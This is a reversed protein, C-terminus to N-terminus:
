HEPKIPNPNPNLSPSPTPLRPHSRVQKIFLGKGHYEYYWLDIAHRRLLREAGHMADPDFGELDSKVLHVREGLGLRPLEDDLRVLRAAVGGTHSRGNIGGSEGASDFRVIGEAKGVAANILTLQKPAIAAMKGAATHNLVVAAADSLMAYNDPDPEFAVVRPIAALERASMGCGAKHWGRGITAHIASVQREVLQGWAAFVAM